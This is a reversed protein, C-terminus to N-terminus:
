TLSGAAPREVRAIRINPRYITVAAVITICSFFGYIPRVYLIGFPTGVFSGVSFAFPKLGFSHHLPYVTRRDPVSVM